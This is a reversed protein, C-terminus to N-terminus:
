QYVKIKYSSSSTYCARFIKIFNPRNTEVTNYNKNDEFDSAFSNKSLINQLYFSLSVGFLVYILVKYKKM